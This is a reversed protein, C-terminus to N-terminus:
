KLPVAMFVSTSDIAEIHGTEDVKLNIRGHDDIYDISLLDGAKFVGPTHTQFTGSKWVDVLNGGTQNTATIWRADEGTPSIEWDDHGSARLPVGPRVRQVHSALRLRAPSTASM